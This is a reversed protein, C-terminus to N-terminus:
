KKNGFILSLQSNQNQQQKDSGTVGVRQFGVTSTAQPNLAPIDDLVRKLAEMLSANDITGDEKIVNGLDAMKIVYPITKADLGLGLASLTAAQEVQAKQLAKNANQLKANLADFDPTNDAKQQKFQSMAQEAEQQSLGQQKFYAKLAVDEKAALTGDLMKQIKDYDVSVASQTQAGQGEQTPETGTQEGEAFFQLNMPRLKAKNM